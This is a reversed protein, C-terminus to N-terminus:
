YTVANKHTQTTRHKPLLRAIHQDGVWLTRGGTFSWSVSYNVRHELIPNLERTLSCCFSYAGSLIGPSLIRLELTVEVASIQVDAMNIIPASKRLAHLPMTRMGLDSFTWYPGLRVSIIIRYYNKWKLAVFNPLYNPVHNFYFRAKEM